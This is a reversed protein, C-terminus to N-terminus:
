IGLELFEKKKITDFYLQNIISGENQTYLM